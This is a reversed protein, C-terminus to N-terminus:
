TQVGTHIMVDKRPLPIEEESDTSESPETCDIDAVSDGDSMDSLMEWDGFVFLEAYSQKDCLGCREM